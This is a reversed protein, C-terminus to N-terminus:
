AALFALSHTAVFETEGVLWDGELVRDSRLWSLSLDTKSTALVQLIMAQEADLAADLTGAHDKQNRRYLWHVIVTTDVLAGTESSHASTSRESASVELAYQQHQAPTGATVLREHDFPSQTWGALATLQTAIRQRLASITLAAM